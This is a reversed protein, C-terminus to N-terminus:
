NGGLFGGHFGCAGGSVEHAGVPVLGLLNIGGRCVVDLQFEVHAALFQDCFNKERCKRLNGQEALFATGAVRVGSVPPDHIGNVARHIIKEPHRVCANRNCQLPALPFIVFRNKAHNVIRERVFQPRRHPASLVLNFPRATRTLWRPLILSATM